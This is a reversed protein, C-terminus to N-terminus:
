ALMIPERKKIADLFVKKREDILAQISDVTSYKGFDEIRLDSYKAVLAKLDDSLQNLKKDGKSENRRRPLLSVNGLSNKLEKNISTGEVLQDFETQPIIHDVDYEVQAVNDPDRGQLIAFYYLIACHKKYDDSTAACAKDLFSTWESEPALAVRDDLNGTLHKWIRSDSSGKWVNNAHELILRDLLCIASRVFMKGNGGADCNLQVWRKRLIALFELTPTIGILQCLPRGWSHLRKFFPHGLLHALASNITRQLEPLDNVLNIATDKELEEIRVASVGNELLAAVSKFGHQVKLLLGNDDDDYKPFLLHWKDIRDIFTACLDWYVFTGNHPDNEGPINLRRYLEAISNRVEPALNDARVTTNWYPKASLLEEAKLQTGGRNVLSFINQSDLSSVRNIKIVGIYAQDFVAQVRVLINFDDKIRPFIEALKQRFAGQQGDKMPLASLFKFFSDETIADVNGFQNLLDKVIFEKLKKPDVGGSNSDIYPLYAFYKSFDWRMEFATRDRKHSGHLLLLLDLLLKLNGQQTAVDIDSDSEEEQGDGDADTSANQNLYTGVEKWYADQFDAEPSTVKIRLYKIASDYLQKPNEILKKLAARRQRGDLLYNVDRTGERTQNYIVVGLPYGKFMSVCLGFNQKDTWAQRRQFRPLKITADGIFDTVKIEAIHYYTM